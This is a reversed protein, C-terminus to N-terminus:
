DVKKCEFTSPGVSFEWRSQGVDTMKQGAMQEALGLLARVDQDGGSMQVGYEVLCLFSGPGSVQCSGIKLNVLSMHPMAGKGGFLGALNGSRASYDAVAGRVCSAAQNTDLTAQQNCSALMLCVLLTFVRM